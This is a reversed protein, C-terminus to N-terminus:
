FPVGKDTTTERKYFDTVIWSGLRECSHEVLAIAEGQRIDAVTRLKLEFQQGVRLTQFIRNGAMRERVEDELNLREPEVRVLFGHLYAEWM